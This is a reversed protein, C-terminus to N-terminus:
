SGVLHQLADGLGLHATKMVSTVPSCSVLLQFTPFMEDSCEVPMPKPSAPPSHGTQDMAVLLVATGLEYFSVGLMWLQALTFSPPICQDQLEHNPTGPEEWRRGTLLESNQRTLLWFLEFLPSFLLREM